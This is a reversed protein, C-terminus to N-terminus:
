IWFALAASRASAAAAGAPLPASDPGHPAHCDFSQAPAPSCDAGQWCALPAASSKSGEVHRTASPVIGSVSALTFAARAEHSLSTLLIQWSRGGPEFVHPM